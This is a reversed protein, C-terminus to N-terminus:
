FTPVQIISTYTVPNLGPEQWTIDIKFTPPTTSPDYDVSGV